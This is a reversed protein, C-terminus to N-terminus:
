FHRLTQSYHISVPVFLHHVGPKNQDTLSILFTFYFSLFRPQENITVHFIILM